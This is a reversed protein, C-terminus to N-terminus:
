CEENEKTKKATEPQKITSENKAGCHPCCPFPDVTKLIVLRCGCETCKIRIAKDSEELTFPDIFPKVIWM